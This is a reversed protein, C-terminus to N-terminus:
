SHGQQRAKRLRAPVPFHRFPSVRTTRLLDKLAESDQTYLGAAVLRAQQTNASDPQISQNVFDEKEAVQQGEDSLAFEVFDGVFSSGQREPTYLYLRRALPYEESKIAFPSPEYALDCELIKLARSSLVYPLGIFGIANPNSAIENSLETSSEFRQAESSLKLNRPDLVLHKLTDFTGSKDDRANLKISV